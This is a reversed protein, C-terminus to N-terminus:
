GRQEITYTIEVGEQDALLRILTALLDVGNPKFEKTEMSEVKKGYMDGLPKEKERVASFLAKILFEPKDNQKVFVPIHVFLFETKQMAHLQRQNPQTIKTQKFWNKYIHEM